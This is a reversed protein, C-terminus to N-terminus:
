RPSHMGLRTDFELRLFQLHRRYWKDDISNTLTGVLLGLFTMAVMAVWVTPDISSYGVTDSRQRARIGLITGHLTTCLTVAAYFWPHSWPLVWPGRLLSQGRHVMTFAQTVLSLLLQCSMVDQLLCFNHLREGVLSGSADLMDVYFFLRRCRTLKASLFGGGM